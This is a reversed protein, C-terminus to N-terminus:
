TTGFTILISFLGLLFWLFCGLTFILKPLIGDNFNKFGFYLSPLVLILPITGLLLFFPYRVWFFFSPDFYFAYFPGALIILVMEVGSFFGVGKIAMYTTFVLFPLANLAVIKLKNKNDNTVRKM